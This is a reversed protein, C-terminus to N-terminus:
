KTEKHEVTAGLLREILATLEYTGVQLETATAGLEDLLYGTPTGIKAFPDDDSLTKRVAVVSELRFREAMARNADEGGNALLVLRIGAESLADANASAIPAFVECYGCGPNWNVLLVRSGELQALDITTGDLATHSFRSIPSGVPLGQKEHAHGEHGTAAAVHDLAGARGLRKALDLVDTRVVELPAAFVDALAEAIEQITASGDFTSWVITGIADLHSVGLRDGEVLVTEGDIEISVLNDKPRPVFSGDITDADIGADVASVPLEKEAGESSLSDSM